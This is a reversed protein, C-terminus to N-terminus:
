LLLKEEFKEESHGWNSSNFPYIARSKLMHLILYQLTSGDLKPMRLDFAIRDLPDDMEWGDAHSIHYTCHSLPLIVQKKGIAAAAGLAISDIHLSYADFEAYGHIDIWDEKHMLTFDGCAWTDLGHYLNHVKDVFLWLLQSLIITFLQMPLHRYWFPSSGPFNAYWRNKGLRQKINSKCFALVSSLNYPVTLSSPIKSVDCRNCRYFHNRKLTKKALFKFLTESFIIDANTCLVFSGTARRIGVNKAIMQYLNLSKSLRYQEHLSGPVRIVRLTLPTDQPLSPLVEWLPPRDQPPNWEVLLIETALKYKQVLAYITSLCLTLRSAFDAGHDDNRASIIVSLYPKM